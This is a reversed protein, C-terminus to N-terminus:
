DKPKAANAKSPVYVCESKIKEMEEQIKLTVRIGSKYALWKAALEHEIIADELKEQAEKFPIYKEVLATVREWTATTTDDEEPVLSNISEHTFGASAAVISAFVPYKMGEKKM